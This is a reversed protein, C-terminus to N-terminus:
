PSLAAAGATAVAAPSGSFVIRGNALVNVRNAISLDGPEQMACIVILGADCAARLAAAIGARGEGDLGTFPEEVLLVRPAGLWARGLALAMRDAPPLEAAPRLPAAALAPFRDLWAAYDRAVARRNRRRWAGVLLNERVSLRGLVPRGDAVYRIGRGARAHPRLSTVDAGDLRITGADPRVLGAVSRLFASKGAGHGGILALVEGSHGFVTLDDLARMGDPTCLRLRRAELV